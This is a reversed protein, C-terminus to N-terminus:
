SVKKVYYLNLNMCEGFLLPPIFVFLMIHPNIHEWQIISELLTNSHDNVTYNHVVAIIIGELFLLVTFPIANTFRSILYTLTGLVLEFYLFLIAAHPEM